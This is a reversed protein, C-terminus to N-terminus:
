PLFVLYNTEPLQRKPPRSSFDTEGIDEFARLALMSMLFGYQLLLCIVWQSSKHFCSSM